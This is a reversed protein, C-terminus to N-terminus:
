DVSMAVVLQMEAKLKAVVFYLDIKLIHMCMFLAM